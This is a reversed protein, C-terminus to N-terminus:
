VELAIISLMRDKEQHNIIRKIEFTREHFSMRMEKTINKIYRTRFHFYEETIVDGFAVGEMPVYRNDCVPQVEAFCVAFVEWKAEDLETEATNKLVSIKHAFRSIISQKKMNLLRIVKYKLRETHYIYTGLKM